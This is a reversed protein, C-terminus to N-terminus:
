NASVGIDLIYNVETSVLMLNTTTKSYGSKEVVVQMTSNVASIDNIKYKGNSDTTATKGGISVKAGSINFGTASDRVTGSVSFTPVTECGAFCLSLGLILAFVIWLKKRTM